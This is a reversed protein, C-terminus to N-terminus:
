LHALAEEPSVRRYREAGGADGAADRRGARAAEREADTVTVTQGIVGQVYRAVVANGAVTVTGESEEWGGAAPSVYLFARRIRSLASNRTHPELGAREGGERRDLVLLSIGRDNVARLVEEAGGELSVCKHQPWIDFMSYDGPESGVHFVYYDPYVFFDPGHKRQEDYFATVAALILAGMRVAGLPHRVVVGLRDQATFGPCLDAFSAVPRGGLEMEFMDSRLEGSSHM